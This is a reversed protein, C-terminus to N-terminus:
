GSPGQLGRVNFQQKGVANREARSEPESESEPQVSSNNRSALGSCMVGSWGVGPWGLGALGLGAHSFSSSLQVLIHSRSSFSFSPQVLIHSRSSFSFSLQVLSGQVLVLASRSVASRSRPEASRSSFSFSLQVLIRFSLQVLVVNLQVVNKNMGQEACM